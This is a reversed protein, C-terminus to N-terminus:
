YVSKYYATLQVKTSFYVSFYVYPTVVNQNVLIGQM